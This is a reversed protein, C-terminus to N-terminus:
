TGFGEEEIWVQSWCCHRLSSFEGLPVGCASYPWFYYLLLTLLLYYALAILLLKLCCALAILKPQLEM